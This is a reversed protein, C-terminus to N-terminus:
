KVVEFKVFDVGRGSQMKIIYSGASLNETGLLFQNLGLPRMGTVLEKILMGSSSLLQLVIMESQVLSFEVTLKDAAPNPYVSIANGKDAIESVDIEIISTTIETGINNVHLTDSYIIGGESDLLTIRLPTTKGKEKKVKLVINFLGSSDGQKLPRPCCLGFFANNNGMQALEVPELYSPFSDSSHMAGSIAFIKPCDNTDMGISCYKAAIANNGSGILKFQYASLGYGTEVQVPVQTVGIQVPTLSKGKWKIPFTCETSDCKIVTIQINGTYSIDVALNFMITNVAAPSIVGVSPIMTPNWYSIPKSSGDIMLGSSAFSATPTASISVKCIPSSPNLNTITFKGHLLDKYPECPSFLASIKACCDDVPPCPCKLQEQFACIKGSAMTIQFVALIPKTCDKPTLNTTLHGGFPLNCANTINVSSTGDYSAPNFVLGTCSSTIGGALFQGNTLTISISRITDRCSDQQHVLKISCKLSDKSSIFLPCCSQVCKKVIITVSKFCGNLSYTVMYTGIAGPTFLGSSSVWSTGSWIGGLPSASLQLAPDNICLEGPSITININADVPSYDFGDIHDPLYFVDNTTGINPHMTNSLDLETAYLDSTNWINNPNPIVFLNSSARKTFYLNGDIASEIRALEHSNYFNPNTDKDWSLGSGSNANINETKYATQIKVAAIANNDVNNYTSLDLQVLYTLNNFSDQYFGGHTIYILNGNPSFQIDSLKRAFNGFFRLNLATSIGLNSATLWESPADYSSNTLSYNTASTFYSSPLLQNGLPKIIINNCIITKNLTITSNLNNFLFLKSGSLNQDYNMFALETRSNNLELNSNPCTLQYNNVTIPNSSSGPVYNIGTQGIIFRDIVPAITMSGDYRFKRRIAFLFDHTSAKAHQYEDESSVAFLQSNLKGAVISMLGNGSNYKIHSYLLKKSDYINWIANRSDDNELYIIYWEDCAKPVRIVQVEGDTRVGNLGIFAGGDNLIKEGTQSRVWLENNNNSGSHIVYFLMNGCCDYGGMSPGHATNLPGNPIQSVVPNLTNPPLWSVVESPVPNSTNYDHPNTALPWVPSQAVIRGAFFLILSFLFIYNRM